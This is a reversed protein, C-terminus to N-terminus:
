VVSKRDLDMRDAVFNLYKLVTARDPQREPWDFENMLDDSFTYCYYPAVPFDVRAGPYRNWNWTGGVNHGDDYVRVKLGKERLTYLAHMGSFGAGIVIVDFYTASDCTTTTHAIATNTM